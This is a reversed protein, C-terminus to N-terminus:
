GFNRQFRQSLTEGRYLCGYLNEVIAPTEELAKQYLEMLKKNSEECVPNPVKRMVQGELSDYCGLVKMGGLIIKEKANGKCTLFKDYAKQGRIAKEIQRETLKPFFRVIVKCNEETPELVSAPLYSFLRKGERELLYRDLETEIEAHSVGKKREFLNIYGHCTSDLMFHCAFGLLYAALQASPETCFEKVGREFFGAAKERHMQHGLENVVNKQLPRYYFLIDPGHLGIRYLDKGKRITEKVPDSFRKFVEKGFIDHTFTTPM